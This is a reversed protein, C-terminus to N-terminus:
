PDDHSVAVITGYRECIRHLFDNCYNLSTVERSSVTDLLKGAMGGHGRSADSQHASPLSPASLRRLAAAEM